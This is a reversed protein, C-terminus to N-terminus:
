QGSYDVSDNNSKNEREAKSKFQYTIKNKSLEYKDVIAKNKEIADFYEKSIEEKRKQQM